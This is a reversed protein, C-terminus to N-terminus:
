PGVALRDGGPARVRWRPRPRGSGAVHHDAIFLQFDIAVHLGRRCRSGGLVSAAAACAGAAKVLGPEASVSTMRLGRGCRWGCWFPDHGAGRCPAAGPACLAAGHAALTMLGRHGRPALSAARWFVVLVLFVRCRWARMKRCGPWSALCFRTTPCPAMFSLSHWVIARLGSGKCDILASRQIPCSLHRSIFPHARNLAAWPMPWCLPAIGPIVRWGGGNTRVARRREGSGAKHAVRGEGGLAQRARPLIRRM